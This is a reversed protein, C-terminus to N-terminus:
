AVRSLRYAWAGAWSSTVLHRFARLVSRDKGIPKSATSTTSSLAETQRSSSNRFLGAAVNATM